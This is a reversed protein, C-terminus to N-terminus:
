TARSYVRKMLIPTLYMPIQYCGVFLLLPDTVSAPLAVLFLAINRNGSCIAFATKDNRFVTRGLIVFALVQMGLNAAMAVGLWMLFVMPQTSLTPGASSMLGVVVVAMAIASLGDFAAITSPEPDRFFIHRVAFAAGAAGMIVVFLRVSAAFVASTDGLDGSLQFIPIVTLPLLATGVILLRLAPAPNGGAIVTLNPSGSIPSAAAMLLLATAVTTGALGMGTLAVWFAVPVGIQYILALGAVQRLDRLSGLVQRPGIRLAAVFMLGAVLEQLWPRMAVAVSPLTVGAVLGLVLLLRGHRAALVLGAKAPNM